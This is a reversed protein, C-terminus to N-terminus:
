ASKKAANRASRSKLRAARSKPIVGKRAATDLESHTKSLLDGGGDEAARQLKLQKRLTTKVGLNRRRAKEATKLRKRASKHHPM